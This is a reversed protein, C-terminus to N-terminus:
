HGLSLQNGGAGDGAHIAGVVLVAFLLCCWCRRTNCWDISYPLFSFVAGKPPLHLSIGLIIGPQGAV